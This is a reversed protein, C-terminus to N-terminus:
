WGHSQAAHPHCASVASTGVASCTEDSACETQTKCVKMCELAQSDTADCIDGTTCDKTAGAATCTDGTAGSQACAALAGMLFVASLARVQM